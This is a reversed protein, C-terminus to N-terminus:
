MMMLLSQADPMTVELRLNSVSATVSVSDGVDFSSARLLDRVRVQTLDQSPSLGVSFSLNQSAVIAHHTFATIWSGGGNLSYEVQFTNDSGGSTNVIAGNQSYDFALNIATINGAVSSFGQWICTKTQTAANVASATTSGHGTNVNGTVALGGQGPDPTTNSTPNLTTLM